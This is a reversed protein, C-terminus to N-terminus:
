SSLREVVYPMALRYHLWAFLLLGFALASMLWFGTPDSVVGTITLERTTVLLPTVPNFRVLLGFFNDGTPVPFLVPTIFMWLRSVLGIGKGFDRYLAGMPALMVGIGTGLVLLHILAVPALIVSSQLPMKFWIFMGIILILKFAFLFIVQGIGGLILSERPFSIKALMTRAQIVKQMPLTISEQFTQWLATSFLVYAPYPFETEGINLVKANSAYTFIAAALIPPIIAWAVGLLSQRYEASIDRKLLQWALNRSGLLDFWMSRFLRVFQRMESDPRYIRISGRRSGRFRHESSMSTQQRSRVM